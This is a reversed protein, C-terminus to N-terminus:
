RPRRQQTLCTSWKVEPGLLLPLRWGSYWSFAILVAIGILTPGFALLLYAVSVPETTDLLVGAWWFSGLALSLFSLATLTYKLPLRAM